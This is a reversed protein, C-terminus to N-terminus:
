ATLRPQHREEVENLEKKRQDLANRRMRLLEAYSLDAMETMAKDIAEQDRMQQYQAVVQDGATGGNFDSTTDQDYNTRVITGSDSEMTDMTNASTDIMTGNDDSGSDDSDESADTEDDSDMKRFEEIQERCEDGLAKLVVKRGEVARQIFRHQLLEAATPREASQKRLCTGVFDVFDDRWKGPEAMIPPPRSPIMFIARMPHVDSLPPQGEALEGM